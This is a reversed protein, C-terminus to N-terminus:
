YEVQWEIQEREAKAGDGPAPVIYIHVQYIGAEVKKGNLHIRRQGYIDFHPDALSQHSVGTTGEYPTKTTTTPPRHGSSILRM